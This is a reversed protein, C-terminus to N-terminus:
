VSYITPLTLHTYSVADYTGSITVWEGVPLTTSGGAGIPAGGDPTVALGVIGNSISLGTGTGFGGAGVPKSLAYMLEPSGDWKVTAEWTFFDQKLVDDHAVEVYDSLAETAEGDFSLAAGHLNGPPGQLVQADNTNQSLDVAAGNADLADFTWYGQLTAESGPNDIRIDFIDDIQEATRAESWVRAESIMGEFNRDGDNRDGFLLDDTTSIPNTVFTDGVSADAAWGTNSGDLYGLVTGEAGAGDADVTM